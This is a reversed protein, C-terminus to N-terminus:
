ALHEGEEALMQALLPAGVHACRNDLDYGCVAHGLAARYPERKRVRDNGIVVCAMRREAVDDREVEDVRIEFGARAGPDLQGQLARLLQAGREITRDRGGFEFLRFHAALARHWTENARRSAAPLAPRM